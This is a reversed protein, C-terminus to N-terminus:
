LTYPAFVQHLTSQTTDFEAAPPCLESLQCCYKMSDHAYANQISHCMTDVDICPCYPETRCGHPVISQAERQM